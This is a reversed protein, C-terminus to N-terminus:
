AVLRSRAEMLAFGLLNLGRWRSPIKADDDNQGMGIGWVSDRPSAEVLVANGTSVLFQRLHANQEFKALLGSTVIRFRHATWVPDSFGRVQRGLMKADAPSKAHLISELTTVDEFLRAKKAMMYHEATAYRIDEIVFSALYWNSLCSKDVVGAKKATHGWFFLYEPEAGSEVLEVLEKVSRVSSADFAREQKLNKICSM